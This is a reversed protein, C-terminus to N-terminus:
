RNWRKGLTIGQTRLPDEARGTRALGAAIWAELEAEMEAAQEQREDALNHAEGPDNILDYLERPPMGHRDPERALIFKTDDTRMAWKAQWTAECSIVKPYGLPENQGTLAKWHSRGEMAAPIAAGAAELLTPAIDFHQVMPEIAQGATIKGPLRCMLPVHTIDDYLGHHDFYIDHQYMSEGHDGTLVVLTDEALGTEELTALIEAIGDDVHRIEADYLSAVYEADTVPGLKNFWLDRFM